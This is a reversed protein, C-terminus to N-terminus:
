GDKRDVSRIEDPPVGAGNLLERVAPAREFARQVVTSLREDRDNSPAGVSCIHTDRTQRPRAQRDTAKRCQINVAPLM